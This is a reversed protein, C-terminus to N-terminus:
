RPQLDATPWTMTPYKFLLYIENINSSLYLQLRFCFLHFAAYKYTVTSCKASEINRSTFIKTSSLTKSYTLKALLILNIIDCQVTVAHLGKKCILVKLM